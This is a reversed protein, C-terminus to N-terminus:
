NKYTVYTHIKCTHIKRTLEGRGGGLYRPLCSNSRVFSFFSASSFSIFFLSSHLTFYTVLIPAIQHYNFLLSRPVFIPSSPWSSLTYITWKYTSFLYKIRSTNYVRTGSPSLTDVHARQCARICSVDGRAIGIVTKDFDFDSIWCRSSPFEERHSAAANPATRM